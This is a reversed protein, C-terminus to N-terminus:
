LISKAFQSNFHSFQDRKMQQSKLRISLLLIEQFL